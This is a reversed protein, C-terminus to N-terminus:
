LKNFQPPELVIDPYAPYAPNLWAGGDVVLVVGSIYTAAESFLFVTAHAIDQVEGMRQMPVATLDFAPGLKEMGVTSAIPGPAIGNVRVGHPGLEVAWHKTLADIAAKAAGAHQQFPTGTYHLTASVNIIAGKSKKIYPAAAKTLNFTGLLDIEIVTRFANYSLHDFAALFNGAAGNILFDIRGYKEVTVKVANEVDAPNRVDGAVAFVEGGTKASMEKAAKELKDKSRSFIVATAGHKVMAETMGRCIGSGGGSCLLIKGKFLDEKFIKTTDVVSM